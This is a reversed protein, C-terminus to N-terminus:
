LVNMKLIINLDVIRNTCRDDRIASIFDRCFDIVVSLHLLEYCIGGSRLTYNWSLITYVYIHLKIIYTHTHTHTYHDLFCYTFLFRKHGVTQVSPASTVLWYREKTVWEGDTQLSHMYFSLTIFNLVFRDDGSVQFWIPSWVERYLYALSQM